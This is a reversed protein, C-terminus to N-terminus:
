ILEEFQIKNLLRKDLFIQKEPILNDATARILRTRMLKDYVINKNRRIYDMIKKYFLGIYAYDIKNLVFNNTHDIKDHINRMENDISIALDKFRFWYDSITVEIQLLENTDVSTFQYLIHRVETQQNIGFWISNLKDVEYIDYSNICTLFNQRWHKQWMYYEDRNYFFNVLDAKFTKDDLNVVRLKIADFLELLSDYNAKKLQLYEIDPITKRKMYWILDYIDRPKCAAQEGAVIRSTRNMVALIKSAMLTSFPYTRISFVHNYRIIPIQETVLKNALKFYNIDLRLKLKTHTVGELKALAPMLLGISMLQTDKNNRDKIKIDLKVSYTKNFYTEIDYKLERLNIKTATQFDLDESMRPLQYAIRLLSGGYMILQSYKKSNYIYGLIYYQLEEKLSNKISEGPVNEKKLKQIRQILKPTLTDLM